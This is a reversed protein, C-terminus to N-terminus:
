WIEFAGKRCFAASKTVLERGEVGSFWDLLTIKCGRKPKGDKRMKPTLTDQVPIDPLARGLAAAFNRADRAGVRQGNNFVYMGNPGNTGAPKWDYEIALDLMRPWDQMSLSLYGRRRQLSYSM